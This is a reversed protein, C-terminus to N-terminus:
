RRDLIYREVYASHRLISVRSGNPTSAQPAFDALPLHDQLPRRPTFPVRQAPDPLKSKWGSPESLRSAEPSTSSFLSRDLPSSHSPARRHAYMHENESPLAVKKPASVEQLDREPDTRQRKKASGGPPFPSLRKEALPQAIGANARSPGSISNLQPLLTQLLPVLPTVAGLIANQQDQISQIARVQTQLAQCHTQNFKARQSSPLVVDLIDNREGFPHFRPAQRSQGATARGDQRSNGIGLESCSLRSLDTDSDPQPESFFISCM